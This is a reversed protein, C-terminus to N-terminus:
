NLLADWTEQDDNDDDEDGTLRLNEFSERRKVHGLFKGVSVGFNRFYLICSIFPLNIKSCHIRRKFNQTNLAETCQSLTLLRHYVCCLQSREGSCPAAV